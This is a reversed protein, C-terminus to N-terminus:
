RTGDREEKVLKAFRRLERCLAPIDEPDLTAGQGCGEWPSLYNNSAYISVRGDLGRDITVCNMDEPDSNHFIKTVPM